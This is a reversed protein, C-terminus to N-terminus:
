PERASRHRAVDEPTDLDTPDGPADVVDVLEPHSALLSKAGEDPGALELARRWLAPSMVTPHGRRPGDTAAYRAVAIRGPRWAATVAAIADPGIGPTDVLVVALADADGAADVALALSSRQGREPDPNVVPRAGAVATGARVVALVPECGAATLARVARDLLREGDLVIEAKPRGM